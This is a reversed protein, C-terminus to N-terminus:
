TLCFIPFKLRPFDNILFVRDFIISDRLRDRHSKCPIMLRGDSSSFTLENRLHRLLSENVLDFFGRNKLDNETLRSLGCVAVGMSRLLSSIALEDLEDTTM